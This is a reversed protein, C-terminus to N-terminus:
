IANLSKQLKFLYKILTLVIDLKTNSIRASVTEIPMVVEMQILIDQYEMDVM